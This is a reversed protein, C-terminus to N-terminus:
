GPTDITQRTLAYFGTEADCIQHTYRESGGSVPPLFAIEDGERIAASRDCFEQNCALVISSELDTLRPFERAYRTFVSEVRAGDAVEIHDEALGVIDRLMGFFLVKVRVITM